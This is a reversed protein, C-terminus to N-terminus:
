TRRRGSELPRRGGAPMVAGPVEVAATEVNRIRLPPLHITSADAM